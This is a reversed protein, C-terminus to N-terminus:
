PSPTASQPFGELSVSFGPPIQAREVAEQWGRRLLKRDSPVTGVVVMAPEGSVRLLFRPGATRHIDVVDGLRVSMGEPTELPIREWLAPDEARGPGAKLLIEVSRGGPMELAGLPDGDRLLSITRRIDSPKLGFRAAREPDIRFSLEVETTSPVIELNGAGATKKLEGCISDAIDAIRERDPGRIIAAVQDPEDLSPSGGRWAPAARTLVAKDGLLSGARDMVAKPQQGSGVELCLDGVPWPSLPSSAGLFSTDWISPIDRDEAVKKVLTDRGTREDGDIMLGSPLWRVWVSADVSSHTTLHCGDPLQTKLEDISREAARFVAAPDATVQARVALIVAPRRELTGTQEDRIWLLNEAKVDASVRIEALDSLRVSRGARYGCVVQRLENLVNRDSHERAAFQRVADALLLHSFDERSLRDSDPLIEVSEKMGATLEIGAVGPIAKLRDIIVRRALTSLEGTVEIAPRVTDRSWLGILMVEGDAEIESDLRCQPPLQQPLDELIKKREADADVDRNLFATIDSSGDMTRSRVEAIGPRRRLKSEIPITVQDETEAANAPLLQAHVRLAFNRPWLQLTALLHRYAPEWRPFDAKPTSFLVVVFGTRYPIVVYESQVPIRETDISEPPYFDVSHRTFAFAPRSDAVCERVASVTEDRLTIIGPKTQRYIYAEASAFYTNDPAFYRVSLTPRIEKEAGPFFYVGHYHTRAEERRERIMQWDHPVECRFYGEPCDVMRYRFPEEASLVTREAASLVLAVVLLLIGPRCLPRFLRLM